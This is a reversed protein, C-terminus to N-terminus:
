PLPDVSCATNEPPLWSLMEPKVRALFGVTFGLVVGEIVALPLHVILVLVAVTQWNDSGGLVLVGANLAVTLLVTSEGVLLGVPFEPANELRREVGAVLTAILVVATVTAPHFTVADAVGTALDAERLRNTALLVVSYVLALGWALASGAVLVSRFWPRRLWPVRQLAAFAQWALLAPLAMVCCNIGITSYGGHNLLVAQMGIGVGVALPARRGLVVGVLGNLLLHASTPGVRIHMSSAVFFAATLLAIRPVEEERVRWAALLMLLAAIVFGGAVWPGTLVGDSIHLALPAIVASTM